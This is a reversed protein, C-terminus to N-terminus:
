KTPKRFIFPTYTKDSTVVNEIDKPLIFVTKTDIPKRGRKSKEKDEKTSTM